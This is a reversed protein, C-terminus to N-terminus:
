FMCWCFYALDHMLVVFNDELLECLYIVTCVFNDM